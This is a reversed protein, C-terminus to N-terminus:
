ALLCIHQLHLSKAVRSMDPINYQYHLLRPQYLKVNNTPMDSPPADTLYSKEKIKLPGPPMNSQISGLGSAYRNSSESFLTRM